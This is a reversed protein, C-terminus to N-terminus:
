EAGKEGNIRGRPAGLKIIHRRPLEPPEPSIAIIGARYQPDFQTSASQQREGTKNKESAENKPRLRGPGVAEAVSDGSGGPARESTVDVSSGNRPKQADM